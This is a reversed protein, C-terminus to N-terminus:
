IIKGVYAAIHHFKDSLDAFGWNQRPLAWTVSFTM